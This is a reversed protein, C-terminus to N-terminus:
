VKGLDGVQKVCVMCFNKVLVICLKTIIEMINYASVEVDRQFPMNEDRFNLNWKHNGALRLNHGVTNNGNM